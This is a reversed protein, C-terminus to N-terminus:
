IWRSRGPIAVPPVPLSANWDYAEPGLRLDSHLVEDWTLNEGTYAAERAMIGMLTSYCMSDGDNIPTGNRVAALFADQELQHMNTRRAAIRMPNEGTITFRMLDAQGKTGFVEDRFIADSEAQQRTTAFYKAGNDYEFVTSFHDYINGFQPETRQIRGGVSYCRIPYKQILWAMKDLEHVFQEVVFDGSLWTFYYWDRMQWQMDTWGEQRPFSKLHGLYRVSHLAIPEGIVGGHIREMLQKMHTEYRWCLGSVLSLGKERARQRSQLCSRVGVPDVAVPKEAFVHKDKDIAYALHEPRFHPPSALLVIDVTSDIVSKFGDFGVFRREPPVAIQPAIKTKAMADLSGELRDTFADAMATLKAQPDAMLAQVAAGTGRGGCGILGIRLTEDTGGHVAPVALATAALATSSTRLFQRRSPSVSDTAPPRSMM